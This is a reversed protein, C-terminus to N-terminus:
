QIQQLITISFICYGPMLGFQGAERLVYKIQAYIKQGTRGRSDYENLLVFDGVQYNRDDIRLEFTKQRNWIEHFYKQQCKLDHQVSSAKKSM